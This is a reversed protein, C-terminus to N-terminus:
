RSAQTGPASASSSCTRRSSGPPQPWSWTRERRTTWGGSSASWPCRDSIMCLSLGLIPQLSDSCNQASAVARLGVEPREPLGLEKQLAAKNSAKGRTFNSASYKHAIYKDTAPNWEEDDIGNLVGTLVYARSGIMGDLGWGGEPTQIEFAYGPSVAVIRDATSLGGQVACRGWADALRRQTGM